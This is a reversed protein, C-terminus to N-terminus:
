IQGSVSELYACLDADTTADRNVDPVIVGREIALARLDELRKWTEDKIPDPNANGSLIGISVDKNVKIEPVVKTANDDPLDETSVDIPAEDSILFKQMVPSFNGYRKIFVRLCTKRRMKDRDTHWVSKQSAYGKPNYRQGHADCDENSMYLWREIGNKAKYYACWGKVVNSTPEGTITVRQTFRDVEVEEGEYVESVTPAIEYYNTNVSLQVLGHYDPILTAQNGYAVLHAQEMIPDVSLKLSAARMAAIMISKPTCAQLTDERSVAIIVSEM